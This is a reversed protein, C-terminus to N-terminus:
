KVQRITRAAEVIRRAAERVDQSNTFRGVAARICEYADDRELGLALLVHSPEPAGSECASGTSIAVGQLRALLAEAEVGSIRINTTSAVRPGSAGMVEVGQLGSTITQELEDRLRGLRAVEDDMEQALIACAEGFGAIGPVNLTGPRLGGEQGGGSILSDVPQKAPGGAIFLVGVGKPGYGKHASLSLFDVDWEDVDIRVRGLAQAADSHFFANARRAIKALEAVPQITGIENNVAQVSVLLTREDILRRAAELDVVGDSTTPLVVHEISERMQAVQNAAKSVSKHEISSTIIRNRGEGKERLCRVIGKIALNNAETAGSTFVIEGTHAGIHEAVHSRASEVVRYAAQGVSHPSSPNGYYETLTDKVVEVVRPDCPTTAHYDLYIPQESVAPKTTPSPDATVRIQNLYSMDHM